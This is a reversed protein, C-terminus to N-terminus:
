VNEIATKIRTFPKYVRDQTPAPTQLYPSARDVSGLQARKAQLCLCFGIELVNHMKFLFLVISLVWFFFVQILKGSDCVKLIKNVVHSEYYSKFLSLQLIMFAKIFILEQFLYCSMYISFILVIVM